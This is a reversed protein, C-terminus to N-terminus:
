APLIADPLARRLVACPERRPSSVFIAAIM